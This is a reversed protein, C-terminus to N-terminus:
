LTEGSEPLVTESVRIARGIGPHGILIGDDVMRMIVRQATSPVVGLLEAIERRSPPYGKESTHNLVFQRVTAARRRYIQEELDARAM